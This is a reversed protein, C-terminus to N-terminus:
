SQPPPLTDPNVGTRLRITELVRPVYMQTETPLKDAIQDFSKTNKKKCLSSVRAEGANYAALALPWSGFRTYLKKLYQATARANHEPVLRQDHPKITLGLSKATNPMLQFLGAAGVPSKTNADMSSEVEAMWVLEEPIGENRFAPTIRPLMAEARRPVNYKAVAKRWYARGRISRTSDRKIAPEETVVKGAQTTKESTKAQATKKETKPKEPKDDSEPLKTMSKYTPPLHPLSSVDFGSPNTHPTATASHTAHGPKVSGTHAITVKEAETIKAQRAAEMKEEQLIRKEDELAEFYVMRSELWSDYEQIGPLFPANKRISSVCTQLKELDQPDDSHLAQFEHLCFEHVADPDHNMIRDNLDSFFATGSSFDLPDFFLSGTEDFSLCGPMATLFLLALFLSSLLRHLIRRM